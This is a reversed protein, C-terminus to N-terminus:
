AAHRRIHERLLQACDPCARAHARVWAPFRGRRPAKLLGRLEECRRERGAVMLKLNKRGAEAARKAANADIGLLSGIEAFTLGQLERLVLTQRQRAPLARVDDILVRLGLSRTAIGATDLPGQLEPPLEATARRAAHARADLATNRAIRCIWPRFMIPRAGSRLAQWVKLFTDQVLDEVAAPDGCVRMCVRYVLLRFRSFLVEFAERDGAGARAAIEEDVLGLLADM